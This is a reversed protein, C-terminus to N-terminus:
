TVTPIERGAPPAPNGGRLEATITQTVLAGLQDFAFVQALGEAFTGSAPMVPNQLELGGIRVRLDVM